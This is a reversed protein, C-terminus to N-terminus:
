SVLGTLVALPVSVFGATVVVSFIVAFTRRWRNYRPHNWGLSQFMSWLGHYLHLGLILNAVIYVVAVPWHSPSFGVVVNHYVDGAVFDPNANGWTLHMLHYLVYLALIVGGWRMTRSAYDMQVATRQDYDRPRARRNLLTLQTASTIHLVVSGLLVLRVVWLLGTRPVIPEGLDRLGEAYANFHEAGQFVKLNGAMHGLVFGFLIIGTVAMVAKKGLTSSYFDAFWNM